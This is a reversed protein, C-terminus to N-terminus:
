PDRMEGGGVVGLEKDSEKRKEVTMQVVWGVATKQEVLWVAMRQEGQAWKRKKKARVRWGDPIWWEVM